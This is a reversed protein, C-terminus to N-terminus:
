LQKVLLFTNIMRERIKDVSNVLVYLMDTNRINLILSYFKVMEFDM